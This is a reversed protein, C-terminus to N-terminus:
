KISNQEEKKKNEIRQKADYIEKLKKQRQWDRLIEEAVSSGKNKM